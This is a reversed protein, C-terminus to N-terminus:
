LSFNIQFYKKQCNKIKYILNKTKLNKISDKNLRLDQNNVIRTKTIKQIIEKEEEAEQDIKIRNKM